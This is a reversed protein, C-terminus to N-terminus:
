KGGKKIKYSNLWNSVSYTKVEYKDAIQKLTLGAERLAKVNDFDDDLIGYETILSLGLDRMRKNLQYRNCNFKEMMNIARMRANVADILEQDTM